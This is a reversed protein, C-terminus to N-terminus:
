TLEVLRVLLVILRVSDHPAIGSAGSCEIVHCTCVGVGGSGSGRVRCCRGEELDSRWQM